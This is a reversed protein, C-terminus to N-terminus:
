PFFGGGLAYRNAALEFPNRASVGGSLFYTPLFAPGLVEYQLAHGQEHLGLNIPVPSGYFFGSDTSPNSGVPFIQVNGLTLGDGAQGLPFDLFQIANNAFRLRAGFPVGALGVLAGILTNPSTWIKGALDAGFRGAAGLLGGTVGVSTQLQGGLSSGSEGEAHAAPLQERTGGAGKEGQATARGAAIGALAVAAALVAYSGVVYQGSQFSEIASQITTAVRYGELAVKALTAATAGLQLGSGVIGAAGGAALTGLGVGLNKLAAVTAQGPSAGKLGAQVGAAAAGLLVLGIAIAACVLECAGDPDTGNLPNGGLYSYPSPFERAPDHSLFLGLAADYYRAGFYLLGTGDDARHGTFQFPSRSAVLGAGAADYVGATAGYPRHVLHELVNGARDTLLQPSGLHDVHYFVAGAPPPGATPDCQAEADPLWPLQAALFLVAVTGVARRRRPLSVAIGLLAVALAGGAVDAVTSPMARAVAMAGSVPSSAVLLGGFSLHRVVVGDDRVDFAGFFFTTGAEAATWAAVREGRHDYAYRAVVEGGRRVETLRGLADWVLTRDAPLRVMGGNADYQIASTGVSTPQHPHQDVAYTYALGDKHTLNGLGDTVFAADYTTRRGPPLDRTGGCQVARALRSADDYVAYLTASYPTRPVHLLDRTARVNGDPDYAQYLVDRLLAEAPPASPRGTLVERLRSGDEPLAYYFVDEVGNGYVATVVRGLEDQELDRLYTGHDSRLRLPTGEPSYDYYLTEVGGPYPVTMSALRGVVPDYTSLNTFRRTVPPGGPPAFTVSKMTRLVNGRADYADFTTFGSADDVRSLRGAGGAAADYARRELPTRGGAGPADADFADRAVLRGLLDYAMEVHEAPAPDDAYVVNGDLDYAWRWLGGTDPDAETAKRGLADYTTERTRTTTGGASQRVTRVRSAQDYTREEIAHPTTASALYTLRLVVRAFADREEEVCQGATPDEAHRADCQRTRWPVAYSATTATGDPAVRRVVRGFEDAVSRTAPSADDVVARVTPADRGLVLPAYEALLRGNQGWRRAESVVTRRVGHVRRTLQRQLPRGFPDLFASSTLYHPAPSPELVLTDIRAVAGLVYAMRRTPQATTAGPEVVAALRGFADYAFSTTAGAADTVALPKGWRPDYARRVTLDRAEAHRTEVAPETETEPDYAITTVLGRPSTTSRLNGLADYAFTTTPNGEGLLVSQTLNGRADYVLSKQLGGAVGMTAARDCVGVCVRRADCGGGLSAYAAVSTVATGNVVDLAAERTANGCADYDYDSRSSRFTGASRWPAESAALYDFREVRELLPFWRGDLDPQACGATTACGWTSVTEKLIGSPEIPYRAYTAAWRVRGQLAESQQFETWETMGYVDPPGRFVEIKAASRFGRFERRVGDWYGGDYVYAHTIATTGDAPDVRSIGTVVHVPFPLHSRGDWVLPDVNPGNGGAVTTVGYTLVTVAGTPDVAVALSDPRTDAPHAFFIQALTVGAGPLRVIDPFGNGDLDFTDMLLTHGSRRRIREPAAMLTQPGFGAGTNLWVEWFHGNRSWDRTDVFDPLGDGNVDFVDFDYDGLSADWQRLLGPPPSPWRFPHGADDRGAFGQGTGYWVNWHPGSGDDNGRAAVKDPLGDGNVDFLDTRISRDPTDPGGDRITGHPSFVAVDDSFGCDGAASCGANWRVHWYQHTPSWGATGVLDPRGDGNLDVLDRHVAGTAADGARLYAVGDSRWTVPTPDFGFGTGRWVQWPAVSSDVYDPLGDGDMDVIAQTTLNDAPVRAALCRRPSWWLTPAAFLGGPANRGQNLHVTWYPYDSRWSGTRVLDPRGDGNLDVFDRNNCADDDRFSDESLDQLQAETALTVDASEYYALTTSAPRAGSADVFAEVSGDSGHLLMETLLAAGGTASPRYRLEYWRVTTALYTVDLRALVYATDQPFGAAFSLRNAGPNAVWGFHVGYPHALGNANGGWAVDGPYASRGGPAQVWSVDLTNGNPDRVRTLYWAFTGDFSSPAPGIRSAATAGFTYDRGSRDHLTWTNALVDATFSAHADDVRAAFRRIGYFGWGGDVLERAGDALSAVYPGGIAYSPVGLRTSREIRGIPLDWGVGYPGAAGHSSYALRLNPTMGNRGPPVDIAVSATATGTALQADPSLALGAFATAGDGTTAGPPGEPLALLDGRAVLVLLLGLALRLRM